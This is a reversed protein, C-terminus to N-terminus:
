VNPFETRWMRHRVHREAGEASKLAKRVKRISVVAGAVKLLDRAERLHALALLIRQHDRLTAPRIERAM